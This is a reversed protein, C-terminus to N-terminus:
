SAKAETVSSIRELALLMERATPREEVNPSLCRVLVWKVDNPADIDWLPPVPVVRGSLAAALPPQTFPVKGTLMEHAMVGLAYVDAAPSPRAVGAALEPAMYLPTGMLMGAHTLDETKPGTFRSAEASSVGRMVQADDTLGAIGFDGLKALDGSTLFVNEPKLDRHVVGERHLFAVSRVVQKLRPLAWAQDGFRSRLSALSPGDVLEMALYLTGSGPEIGVDHVQVLNPHVLTAALEAERAFRGGSQINIEGKLIKLALERGDGVRSVRYVAGMGGQGLLAQVVYRGAFVSGRPLPEGTKPRLAGTLAVSLDRARQAVQHQLEASLVQAEGRASALESRLGRARRHVWLAFSGPLGLAGLVVVSSPAQVGAASFGLLVAWSVAHVSGGLVLASVGAGGLEREARVLWVTVLWASLHVLLAALGLAMPPLVVAGVGLLVAAGAAAAAVTRLRRANVPEVGRRLAVLVLPAVVAPAIAAVNSWRSASVGLLEGLLSSRALVAVGLALLGGGLGLARRDRVKALPAVLLLVGLMLPLGALAACVLATSLESTM